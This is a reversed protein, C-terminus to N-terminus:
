ITTTQNVKNLYNVEMVNDADLVIIHDYKDPLRSITYSLAKVKTSKEFSVEQVKIPYTNIKDLTKKQFSDAIVIIDFDSKPYNVKLNDEITNIIIADEKYGPILVAFKHQKTVKETLSQKKYLLGGLSFFLSYSVFYICYVILILEIFFM